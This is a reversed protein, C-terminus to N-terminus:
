YRTKVGAWTAALKGKASVPTMDLVREIGDTMIENIDAETFAVSFIAVEDILSQIMGSGSQAGINFNRTNDEDQDAYAAISVRTEVAGDIYLIAEGDRDISAAVHHWVDDNIPSTGFM